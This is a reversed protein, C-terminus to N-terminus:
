CEHISRQEVLYGTPWTHGSEIAEVSKYVSNLESEDRDNRDAGNGCIGIDGGLNHKRTISSRCNDGADRNVQIAMIHVLHYIGPCVEDSRIARLSVHEEEVAVGHVGTEDSGGLLRSM